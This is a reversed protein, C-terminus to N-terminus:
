NNEGYQYYEPANKNVVMNIRNGNMMASNRSDVDIWEIVLNPIDDRFMFYWPMIVPCKKPIRIGKLGYTTFLPIAENSEQPLNNKLKFKVIHRGTAFNTLGLSDYTIAGM